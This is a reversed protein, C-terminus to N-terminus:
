ENKEFDANVRKLVDGYKEGYFNVEDPGYKKVNDMTTELHKDLKVAENGLNNMANGLQDYSYKSLDPGSEKDGGKGPGSVVKEDDPDFSSVYDMAKDYDPHNPHDLIDGVTNDGITANMVDDPSASSGPKPGGKVGDGKPPPSSGPKPGGELDDVAQAANYHGGDPAYDDAGGKEASGATTEKGGINVKTSKRMKHKKNYADFAKQNKFDMEKISQRILEKLSNRTLKM